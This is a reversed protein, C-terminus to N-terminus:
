PGVLCEVGLKSPGSAGQSNFTRLQLNFTKTMASVMRANFGPVLALRTRDWRWRAPVVEGQGHVLLHHFSCRVGAREMFRFHDPFFFFDTRV